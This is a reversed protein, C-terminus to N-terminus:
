RRRRVLLPLMGALGLLLASPEPITLIYDRANAYMPLADTAVNGFDEPVAFFLRNAGFVDGDGTMTGAGFEAIIVHQNASNNRVGITSGGSVLTESGGMVDLSFTDQVLAYKSEGAFGISGAVPTVGAYIPHSAVAMNPATVDGSYNEAPAADTSWAWKDSESLYASALWLNATIGAWATREAMSGTYVSSTTNRGIVVLDASNLATLDGPNLHVNDYLGTTVTNNGGDELFSQLNASNTQNGTVLIINAGSSVGASLTM